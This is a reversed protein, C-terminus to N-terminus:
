RSHLPVHIAIVVGPASDPRAEVAIRGGISEMIRRSIALGMGSGAYDAPSNLKQFPEFVTMRYQQDIGLGNDRIAIRCEGQPEGGAEIDVVPNCGPSRFKLANHLVKELVKTLVIPVAFTPTPGIEFHITGECQKRFAEVKLCASQIALNLPLSRTQDIANEQAQDYEMVSAILEDQKRAARLIEELRTKTDESLAPDQRQIRQAQMAISRLPQRLDHAFTSLLQSHTVEPM